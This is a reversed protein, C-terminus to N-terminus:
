LLLLGQVGTAQKVPLPSKVFGILDSPVKWCAHKSSNATPVLYTGRTARHHKTPYHKIFYSSLNYKVIKWYVLYHGQRVRGRVLYFIM